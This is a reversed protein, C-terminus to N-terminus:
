NRGKKSTLAYIGVAAIMAMPLWNYGATSLMGPLGIAGTSIVGTGPIPQIPLGGPTPTAGTATAPVGKAQLEAAIQQRQTMMDFPQGVPWYGNPYQALAANKVAQPVANWATAWMPAEHSATNAPGADVIAAALVSGAQAAQLMWTVRAQRQADTSGNGFSVLSGISTGAAAGGPGGVLGGILGGVVSTLSGLNPNRSLARRASGDTDGLLYPGPSYRGAEVSIQQRGSRSNAYM